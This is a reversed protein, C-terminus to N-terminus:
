TVKLLYSFQESDLFLSFVWNGESDHFACSFSCAIRRVTAPVYQTGVCRPMNTNCSKVGAEAQRM